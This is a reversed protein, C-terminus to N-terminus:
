DLTQWWKKHPVDQGITFREGIYPTAVKIDQKEAAALLRIVPDRWEHLALDFAGWHIPMVVKGRLDINAQLSQEPMMHIAEWRQNYQGCEVLTLDFPGYKDGIERFHDAYGGDGSFYLNNYQGQLVWSAWQTKNRDSISRGSFHRAPAATFTLDKFAASEWWDLETIKDEAIGWRMLHAGVGLPVFFHGVHPKLKVISPYDLHDYHDHSIIVADIETFQNLDIPQAYAYRQGFFSFPSAAPGFMPDLLIRKGEMELLFASHGYWTVTTLTDAATQAGQAFKVPLPSTPSINEVTLFDQMIKATNSFSYDMVTEVPNVFAGNQFHISASINVLHEGQPQAGFQPAFNVYLAIACTSIGVAIVIIVAAQKLRHFRTTMSKM